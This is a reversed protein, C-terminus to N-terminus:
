RKEEGKNNYHDIVGNEFYLKYFMNTDPANLDRTIAKLIRIAMEVIPKVKIEIEKEDM